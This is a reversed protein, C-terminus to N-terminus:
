PVWWKTLSLREQPVVLGPAPIFISYWYLIADLVNEVVEQFPKTLFVNRPGQKDEAMRLLKHLNEGSLIRNWTGPVSIEKQNLYKRIWASWWGSLSQWLIGSIARKDKEQGEEEDGKWDLLTQITPLHLESAMEKTPIIVRWFNLFLNTAWCHCFLLACLPIAGLDVLLFCAQRIGLPMPRNGQRLRDPALAVANSRDLFPQAFLSIVWRHWLRSESNSLVAVLLILILQYHFQMLLVEPSSFLVHSHCHAATLIEGGRHHSPTLSPTKYHCTLSHELSRAASDFGRSICVGNFWRWPVQADLFYKSCNRCSSPTCSGCPVGYAAVHVKM